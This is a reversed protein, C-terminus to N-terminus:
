VHRVFILTNLEIAIFNLINVTFTGCLSHGSKEIDWNLTTVEFEFMLNLNNVTFTGSISQSSKEIDWNALVFSRTLNEFAM